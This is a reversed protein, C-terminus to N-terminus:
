PNRAVAAELEQRLLEVTDKLDTMRYVRRGEADIIAAVQAVATVLDDNVIVYDYEGAAGIEEKAIALRRAVLRAIRRVTRGIPRIM